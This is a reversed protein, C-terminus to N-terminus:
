QPFLMWHHHSRCHIIQLKNNVDNEILNQETEQYLTSQLGKLTPFQVKLLQQALNIENDTLEQGM